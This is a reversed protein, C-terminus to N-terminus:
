RKLSALKEQLRRNTAVLMPDGGEPWQESGEMRNGVMRRGDWLVSAYTMPNNIAWEWKSDQKISWSAKFTGSDEPSSFQLQAFLSVAEEGIVKQADDVLADLSATLTM